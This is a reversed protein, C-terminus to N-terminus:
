AGAGRSANLTPIVTGCWALCVLGNAQEEAIIVGTNPMPYEGVSALNINTLVLPLMLYLLSGHTILLSNHDTGGHATVLRDVFPVFRDRLDNYSEGGEIHSDFKHEVVWDHTARAHEAWAEEDGRGEMIGCDPERLADAIEVPLGKSAAVIQATEAARIIPSSYVVTLPVDALSQALAEAQQRGLDTLHHPLERNSIVRLVNAESQGHRVFYIRM